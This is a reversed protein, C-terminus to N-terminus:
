LFCRANSRLDVDGQCQDANSKEECEWLEDLLVQCLSLLIDKRCKVINGGLEASPINLLTTVPIASVAELDVFCVM